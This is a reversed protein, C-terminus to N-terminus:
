QNSELALNSVFLLLVLFCVPAYGSPSRRQSILMFFRTKFLWLNNRLLNKYLIAGFAEKETYFAGFDHDAPTWGWVEIPSSVAASGLGGLQTPSPHLNKFIHLIVIIQNQIIIEFISYPYWPESIPLFRINSCCFKTSQFKFFRYKSLIIIPASIAHNEIRSNYFNRVRESRRGLRYFKLWGRM